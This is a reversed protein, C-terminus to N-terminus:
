VSRVEADGPPLRELRELAVPTARLELGLRRPLVVREIGRGPGLAGGLLALAAPRQAAGERRERGLLTGDDFEGEELPEGIGLDRGHEVARDVCDLGAHEV